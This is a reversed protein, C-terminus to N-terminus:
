DLFLYSVFFEVHQDNLQGLQRVPANPVTDRRGLPNLSYFLECVDHGEVLIHAKFPRPDLARSSSGAVLVEAEQVPEHECCGPGNAFSQECKISVEHALLVAYNKSLVSGHAICIEPRCERIIALGAGLRTQVEKTSITGKSPEEQGFLHLPSHNATSFDCGIRFNLRVKSPQASFLAKGASDNWVAVVPLKPKSQPPGGAKLGLTLM